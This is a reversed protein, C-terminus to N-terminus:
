RYVEGRQSVAVIVKNEFHLVRDALLANLDLTFELLYRGGEPVLSTDTKPQCQRRFYYLKSGQGHRDKKKGAGKPLV